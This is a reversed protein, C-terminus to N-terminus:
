TRRKTWAAIRLLWAGLLGALPAWGKVGQLGSLGLAYTYVAVFWIVYVGSTHLRRWAVPGLPALRPFSTVTMAVLFAVGIFDFVTAAFLFGSYGRLALWIIFSFHWAMGFAFALGIYRRNALLWRTFATPFLQALSSASFAVVFFPLACKVSRQIMLLLGLNTHLDIARSRTKLLIAVSILFALTWFLRWRQFFKGVSMLGPDPDPQSWPFAIASERLRPAGAAGSRQV